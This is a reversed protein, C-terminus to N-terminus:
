LAHAGQSFFYCMEVETNVKQRANDGAQALLRPVLNTKEKKNM